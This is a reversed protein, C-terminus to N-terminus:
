LQRWKCLWYSFIPLQCCNQITEEHIVIQINSFNLDHFNVYNFKKNLKAKNRQILQRFQDFRKKVIKFSL